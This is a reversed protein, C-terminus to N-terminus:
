ATRKLRRSAIGVLGVGLTCLAWLPLPGNGGSGPAPTGTGSLAVSVPNGGAVGIELTAALAGTVSPDFTVLLYCSAGPALVLGSACSGSYAFNGAQTGTLSIAGLTWNTGGTNSVLLSQYSTAEGVPDTGFAMSSSSLNVHAAAGSSAAQTVTLIQGDVTITGSRSSTSSNAATAYTLPYSGTGHTPTVSLWGTAGASVSASWSTTSPVTLTATGVFTGAPAVVTAPSLGSTPGAYNSWNAILKAGDISGLGTAQNYSPDTSSASFGSQGPVSNNGSTILHFVPAGGQAQQGSLAYLVPNFNGVRGNQSQAVLTAIGAMSPAACSTGGIIFATSGSEGQSSFILHGDHVGSATLAVDPVDRLGDSPVGTALQWAPKAFYISAGGGTSYLDSGGSVAGSDNWVSEPIYSLASAQTGPSNSASWYKGPNSVDASFETGGVCTSDPSTCLANVALGQTATPNSDPDCGAAGSDGASVFVSTGQAAAQQWIQNYFTTGGSVDGPSECGSYSVTIADALNNSVAWQSALDIGDSLMTTATTVFKITASPAIAGAWELDLDSEMEDGPVVPPANNGSNAYINTPLTSSLGFTSRFTAIDNAVVSTRGIVAITRGMGTTGAAYPAVLDYITAFDGPALYHATGNTFQPRIPAGAIQPRRRFDHLSAFGIVIGELANPITPNAANALHNEGHWRFRHIRASFTTNLQGITGSFVISRGGTPKEDIRFGKSQLWTCITTLDAAAIGFRLGFAQPTLWHRYEPRGPTQVDRLFQDLDADQTTSGHLVLTIREAFQNPDADGLDVSARVARPVQGVLTVRQSEDIPAIIRAPAGAPPVTNAPQARGAVSALIFALGVFSSKFVSVRPGNCSM